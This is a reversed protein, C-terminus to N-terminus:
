SSGGKERVLEELEARGFFIAWGLVTSNFKDDRINPDAGAALLLRAIEVAGSEATMHLATHNCDWMLRKANVDVGHALLWRIAALNRKSVALHLAITDRGDPGIRGPDHLLMAEAEDYRGLNIATLIDLRGSTALLLSLIAPDANEQSATTLATAGTADTANPDAGLELLLQVSRLRNKAAAHHLPTRRHQNRTM